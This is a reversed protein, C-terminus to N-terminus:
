EKLRSQKEFICDPTPRFLMINWNYFLIAVHIHISRLDFVYAETLSYDGFTTIADGM